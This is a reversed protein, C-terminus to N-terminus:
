NQPATNSIENCLEEIMQDWTPPNYKFERRFKISDLSRDCVFSEDPIINIPLELKEKIMLLLDYKNIPDSSVHYVGAATPYQTVIMEIIRSLEQTTFGSFIANKFGKVSGERSLFWELLSEKRMLEKGIMSTRLTICPEEGVEGLLKTRGYLDQADAIDDERYNGKEGSFVCDTSLHIMRANNTQCFLALQHPFLANIAISPINEKASPLQKIIGVANVVVEPRFDDTVEKLQRISRVDLGAYSNQHSFLNFEKYVAIKQRLTVRTEHRDKLHKFLQHGLMGSGGLILIRM